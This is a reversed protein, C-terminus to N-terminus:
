GTTRNLPIVDGPAWGGFPSRWPEPRGNVEWTTGDALEIEDSPQLAAHAPVFLEADAVVTTSRDDDESSTRPAYICRTLQFTSVLVRDGYRDTRYRRVTVSQDNVAV